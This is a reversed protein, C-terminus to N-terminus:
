PTKKPIEVFKQYWWQFDLRFRNTGVNRGKAFISDIIKKNREPQDNHNYWLFEVVDADQEISGSEKLHRLKPEENDVSRDLQSLLIFVMKNRRALTKATRTVKGIAQARTENKKQPIEMIQLYDVIVAAVKGHRKKFQKVTARIEDITVGASDQIYLPLKEIESYAADIKKWEEPTFGDDGGKRILRPYNVGAIMSVLRDKVENEDMEQSWIMVTGAGPNNKAIGYGLMLAKATKGVGPRGALVYLWGRWLQAWEDFQNFLGTQLKAAKTKLHEFYDKKSEKMSRMRSFSIPRLELVEEEVAALFDEDTEFDEGAMNILKNGYEVARRRIAKSRVIQGYYQINAATPASNALHSLYSVSGMDQVRNFKKFEETVTIIDIPIERKSLNLMVQFILRHQANAFDRDSLFMVDNIAAPDLFISGIVAQEAQLDHLITMDSIM